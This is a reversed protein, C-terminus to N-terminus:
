AGLLPLIKAPDTLLNNAAAALPPPTDVTFAAHITITRYRGSGEITCHTINRVLNIARAPTLGLLDILAGGGLHRGAELPPSYGGTRLPPALTPSPFSRKYPPPQIRPVLLLPKLHDVLARGVMKTGADAGAEGAELPREAGLPGGVGLPPSHPGAELTPTESPALHRAIHQKIRVEEKHEPKMQKRGEPDNFLQQEFHFKTARFQRNFEASTLRLFPEKDAVGLALLRCFCLIRTRAKEDWRQRHRSLYQAGTVGQIDDLLDPALLQLNARGHRNGQETYWLFLANVIPAPNQLLDELLAEHFAKREEKQAQSAESIAEDVPDATPKKKVRLVTFGVARLRTYFYCNNATAVKRGHIAALVHLPDAVWSKENNPLCPMGQRYSSEHTLHLLHNRYEYNKSREIDPLFPLDEPPYEQQWRIKSRQLQRAQLEALELNDLLEEDAFAFFDPLLDREAPLISFVNLVKLKRFRAIFQRFTDEDRLGITFIRGVNRNKINVGESILCTCLLLKISPKIKQRSIIDNLADAEGRNYHSRSITAIQDEKLYGLQVVLKKVENLQDTNNWFAVQLKNQTWDIESLSTILSRSLAEATSGDAEIDFVRVNPNESRSVTVLQADLTQCLLPSMTGSLLVTKKAQPILAACKRLTEARFPQYGRYVQGYQNVFNHAEDIVLLRLFLHPVQHLTDYTCVILDAQNAALVKNYNFDGTLAYGKHQRAIQQALNVTPMAIVLPQRTRRAYKILFTTKGSGTPAELAVTKHAEIIATIPRYQEQLFQKVELRITPVEVRFPDTLLEYTITDDLLDGTSLARYRAGKYSFGKALQNFNAQTHHEAWDRYHNKLFFRNLKSRFSSKTLSFGAFFQSETYNAGPDLAKLDQIVPTHGHLTILDDIGKPGGAGLPPPTKKPKTLPPAPKGMVFCIKCEHNITAFLDFLETAFRQASNNFDQNRRSSLGRVENEAEGNAVDPTITLPIDSRSQTKRRPSLGRVESEAEGNAVNPTITLPIDSRSQTERNLNLGSSCNLADADYAIYISDPLRQLLYKRLEANLRYVSIGLFAVAEIGGVDLAAAKYYGETFVLLGGTVKNKYAQIAMPTPLPRLKQKYPNDYKHLAPNAALIDPHRRTVHLISYFGDEHLNYASKRKQLKEWQHLKEHPIYEIYDGNFTRVQQLINGEPDASLGYAQAQDPSLGIAALRRLFYAQRNEPKNPASLATAKPATTLLGGSRDPSPM